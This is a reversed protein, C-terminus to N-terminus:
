PRMGVSQSDEQIAPATPEIEPERSGENGLDARDAKEELAKGKEIATITRSVLDRFGAFFRDTAEGDSPTPVFERSVTPGMSRTKTVFRSEQGNESKYSKIVATSLSYGYTPVKPPEINLSRFFKEIDSTWIGTWGYEAFAGKANKDLGALFHKELEGTKPNQSEKLAAEMRYGIGGTCYDRIAISAFTGNDISEATGPSVFLSELPVVDIKGGGELIAEIKELVPDALVNLAAEKTPVPEGDRWGRWFVLTERKENPGILRLFAANGNSFCEEVAEHVDSSHENTTAKDTDLIFARYMTANNSKFRRIGGGIELVPAIQIPVNVKLESEPDAFKNVWNARFENNLERVTSFALYGEPATHIKEGPLAMEHFRSVKENSHTRNLSVSIERGHFPGGIVEGEVAGPYCGEVNRELDYRKVKLVLNRHFKPRERKEQKKMGKGKCNPTSPVMAQGQRNCDTEM